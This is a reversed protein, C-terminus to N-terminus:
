HKSKIIMIQNNLDYISITEESIENSIESDLKGRQQKLKVRILIGFILQNMQQHFALFLFYFFIFKKKNLLKSIKM